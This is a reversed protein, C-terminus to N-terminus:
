EGSGIMKIKRYKEQGAYLDKKSILACKYRHIEYSDDANKTADYDYVVLVDSDNYARIELSWGNNKNVLPSHSVKGTKTNVFYYMNDKTLDWGLCWLMEGVHYMIQNNALSCILKKKGTKIDLAMIDKSDSTSIYMVGGIFQYSYDEKNRQRYFERRKGSKLDLVSFVKKSKRYIDTYTDEDEEEERTLKRGYDIGSLILSDGYCGDIEWKMDDDFTMPCVETLEMSTLDLFMLRRESSVYYSKNGEKEQKNKKTVVYIGNEDQIIRDELTFEADFSFVKKRNTGDLEARYLVAPRSEAMNSGSSDVTMEMTISGDQDCERNLIYLHDRFTFLKTTSIPFDESSFVAPCDLTDHQCGATSCLYIEQCTAYDMYMLHRGWDGGKLKTEDNCLYYYGDETYCASDSYPSCCFTLEGKGGAKKVAGAQSATEASSKKAVDTGSAEGSGCSCLSCSIVMTLIFIFLKRM